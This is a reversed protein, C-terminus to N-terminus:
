GGRKVESSHESGTDDESSDISDSNRSSGAGAISAAHNQGGIFFVVYELRTGGTIGLNLQLISDFQISDIALSFSDPSDYIFVIFDKCEVQSRRDWSGLTEDGDGVWESGRIEGTRKNVDQLAPLLGQVMIGVDHSSHFYRSAFGVRIVKSGQEQGKGKEHVTREGQREGEEEAGKRGKTKEQGTDGGQSKTRSNRGNIDKLHKPLERLGTEVAVDSSNGTVSSNTTYETSQGQSNNRGQGQPGNQHSIPLACTQVGTM